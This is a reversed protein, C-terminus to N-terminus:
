AVRRAQQDTEIRSDAMPPTLGNTTAFPSGGGSALRPRRALKGLTFTSANTSCLGGCASSSSTTSAAAKATSLEGVNETALRLYYGRGASGPCFHRVIVGAL